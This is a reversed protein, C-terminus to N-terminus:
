ATAETIELIVSGGKVPEGRAITLTWRSDDVGLADAVGDLASKCSSLMNDLDRRRNDPPRFTIAVAPSSISGKRISAAMCCYRASERNLVKLAATKRWHVRANPSLNPHPWPLTVIM